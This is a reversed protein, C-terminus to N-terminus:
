WSLILFHIMLFLVHKTCYMTFDQRDYITMITGHAKPDWISLVITMWRLPIGINMWGTPPSSCQLQTSMTNRSTESFSCADFLIVAKFAVCPLVCVCVCVRVCAPVCVCVCLTKLFKCIYSRAMHWDKLYLCGKPSSNGNQIYEKWYHIFEKFPMTHKPNANYEKANCNAVPVPTEDSLFSLLNSKNNFLQTKCFSFCGYIIWWKHITFLIFLLIIIKMGFEQLLTKFNPKGEETVWQRRCRWDETFRRSFVCPHNPLLYKKFFTSYSIEKDIYEVFHSSWFQDYSQRPIKVLSCCNHYSDRDM